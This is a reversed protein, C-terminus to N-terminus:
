VDLDGWEVCAIPIACENVRVINAKRVIADAEAASYRGAATVDRTYGRHGPGWWACHEISWVLFVGEFRPVGLHAPATV